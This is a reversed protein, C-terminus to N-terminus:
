VSMLIDIEYESVFQLFVIYLWCYVYAFVMYVLVVFVIM